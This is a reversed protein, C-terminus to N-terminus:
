PLHGLCIIHDWPLPQEDPIGICYFGNQGFCRSFSFWGLDDKTWAEVKQLRSEIRTLKRARMGRAGVVHVIGVKPGKFYPKPCLFRLIYTKPAKPNPLSTESGHAQPLNQLCARKLPHQGSRAYAQRRFNMHIYVYTHICKYVCM